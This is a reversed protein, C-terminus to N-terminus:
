LISSSLFHLLQQITGPQGDNYLPHFSIHSGMPEITLYDSIERAFLLSRRHHNLKHDSRGAKKSEGKFWYAGHLVFPATLV